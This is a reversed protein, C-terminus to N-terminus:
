SCLSLKKFASCIEFLQGLKLDIAYCSDMCLHCFPVTPLPLFVRFLHCILVILIGDTLIFFLVCVKLYKCCLNYLEAARETSNYNQFRRQEWKESLFCLSYHIFLTLRSVSFFFISCKSPSFLLTREIFDWRPPTPTDMLDVCLLLRCCRASGVNGMLAQKWDTSTAQAAKEQNWM